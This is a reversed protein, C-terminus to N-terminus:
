EPQVYIVFSDHDTLRMPGEQDFWVRLADANGRSFAVRSVLADLSPTTLIHDLVQATHNYIYSYRDDEPVRMVQNILDPELLDSEPAVLAEAPIHTGSIIGVVDVLGDSFQFANIDGLVVIHAEPDADILLQVYSAIGAAQAMRRNQVRATDNGALSKIHLNILTLPMSAGDDMLLDVELVLPPRGYLTREALGPEDLSGPMRYCDNVTVRSVRVLYANDIGRGDNGELLCGYYVLAPDDAQIRAILDALVRTNEVEQLAIIDPAHLLDRIHASVKSLRLAYAEPNDPVYDEFTADERDPDDVLDFLNEVNQTAITFEEPLPLPIPRTEFEALDIEMSSPWFQYDQYAFGLGGVVTARSDVTVQEVPLAMEAPDVEVLFPNLDWEPLGLGAFEPNLDAEIGPERFSREGTLSIGFEDFQNTPAVVRADTVSVFMGEYRELPHTGDEAYDLNVSMLDIPEPLENGISLITVRRPGSVELQTLNYFENVRGEVDVRDGVAIGWGLPPMGTFVYVGDSTAPDGDSRDAPTQMFFGAPGVVTVINDLTQVRERQCSSFDTASQIQWIELASDCDPGDQASAPLVLLLMFVAILLFRIRMSGGKTDAAIHFFYVGCSADM